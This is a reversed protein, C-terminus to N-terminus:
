PVSHITVIIRWLLTGKPYTTYMCLLVKEKYVLKLPHTKGIPKDRDEVKDFPVIIAEKPTLSDM